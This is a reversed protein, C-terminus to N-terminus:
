KQLFTKEPVSEEVTGEPSLVVPRNLDPQKGKVTKVVKVKPGFDRTQGADIKGSKCTVGLVGGQADLSLVLTPRFGKSFSEASTMSTSSKWTSTAADYVGIRVLKAEPSIEPAEFSELEADLTSPNYKIEALPGAPSSSGDIPQIYVTTSDILEPVAFAASLLACLSLFLVLTKM